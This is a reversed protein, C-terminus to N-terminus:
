IMNGIGGKFILLVGFHFGRAFADSQHAIVRGSGM